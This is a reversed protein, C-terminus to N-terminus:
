STCFMIQPGRLVQDAPHPRPCVPPLHKCLAPHPVTGERSTPHAPAHLTTMVSTANHPAARTRNQAACAPPTGAHPLTARHVSPQQHGSISFSSGSGTDHLFAVLVIGDLHLRIQSEMGGAQTEKYCKLSWAGPDHARQGPVLAQHTQLRRVM